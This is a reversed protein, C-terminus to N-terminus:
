GDLDVGANQIAQLLARQLIVGAVQRRYQGTGRIDDIPAIEQRLQAQAAVLDLADLKQGRLIAETKVARLPLPAVSGMCIRLDTLEIDQVTVQVAISATAIAMAKRKGLKLYCGGQQATPASFRVGTIIQGPELVTSGPGTFFHELPIAKDGQPGVLEVQAELVILPPAIDAAPSANALNGGLTGRHRIQPAGVAEAGQCLVPVHQRLWPHEAIEGHTVLAGIRVVDGTEMRSLETIKGIDMLGDLTDLKEYNQVLLDTGGAIVKANNQVMYQIAQSLTSPAYYTLSM